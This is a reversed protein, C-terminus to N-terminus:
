LRELTLKLSNKDNPPPTILGDCREELLRILKQSCDCVTKPYTFPTANGHKNYKSEDEYRLAQAHLAAGSLDIRSLEWDFKNSSFLTVGEPILSQSRWEEQERGEEDKSDALRRSPFREEDDEEMVIDFDGDEAVRTVKMTEITEDETSPLDDEDKGSKEPDTGKLFDRADDTYKSFVIDIFSDYSLAALSQHQKQLRSSTTSLHSNVLTGTSTFLGIFAAATVLQNLDIEESTGKGEQNCYKCQHERGGQISKNNKNRRDDACLKRLVPEKKDVIACHLTRHYFEFEKAVTEAVMDTNMSM